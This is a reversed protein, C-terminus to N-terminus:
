TEQVYGVIAVAVCSGEMTFSCHKKTSQVSILLFGFDKALDFITLKGGFVFSNSETEDRSSCSFGRGVAFFGDDSRLSLM